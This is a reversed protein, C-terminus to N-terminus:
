SHAKGGKRGKGSQIYMLAIGAAAILFCGGLTYMATGEGGTEPLEMTPVNTVTVPTTQAKELDVKVGTVPTNGVTFTVLTGDYFAQYGTVYPEVIAYYTNEDMPVAVSEFISQWQTNMDLTTEALFIGNIVTTGEESVSETVRYLEFVVPNMIDAVVGEWKKEVPIETVEASFVLKGNNGLSHTVRTRYDVETDTEMSCDCVNPVTGTTNDTKADHHEHYHTQYFPNEDAPVLTSYARDSANEWKNTYFVLEGGTEQLALVREESERTLGVQYILRVPLQEYYYQVDFFTEEGETRALVQPTYIPLASSPVHMAVTQTGDTNTTLTVTISTLDVSKGPIYPDTNTHNYVYTTVNGNVNVSTATYNVGNYRLVPNGKIEMGAGIQDKLDIGTTEYLIFKYPSTELSKLLIDHFIEELEESSIEGFYAGDAYSYNDAYPNGQLVPIMTQPIGSWTEPWTCSVEVAGGSYQSNLMKKLQDTTTSQNITTTLNQINEVTPNLVARKYNDGTAEDAVAPNDDGEELIGMGVTYFLAAKQYHISVMRKCYNATLVTNYGHIGKANDEGGNGDGYHPGSLPDMYNNTSYTPEGDSLLIFIPQRQVKVTQENEGTGITTEYTTDEVPVDEFIQRGVAIGAQTYTGFGQVADQGINAFSVGASNKLTSGGLLYMRNNYSNGTGEHAHYESGDTHVFYEDNTATYRDLPLLEWAGGSYIAVGIRNEDNQDMIEAIAKNVAPVMRKMRESDSDQLEDDDSVIKSMSGSVDLVFVVDVPTKVVDGHETKYQQGMASLTVGFTNADYNGFAGYDDDMYIVSKDSLVRGDNEEQEAVTDKRYNSEIDSTAPDSYYQGNVTAAGTATTGTLTTAGTKSGSPDIIDNYNPKEPVTGSEDGVTSDDMVDEPVNLETVSSLKFILMSADFYYDGPYYQDDSSLDEGSERVFNGSGTNKLFYNGNKIQWVKEKAQYTVTLNASSSYIVYTQRNFWSGTQGLYVYNSSGVNKITYNSGSKTFQWHLNTDDSGTIIYYDENGKVTTVTVQTASNSNDGRLAMNGQASVIMYTEGAVLQDTSSVREWFTGNVTERTIALAVVGIEGTRFNVGTIGSDIELIQEEKAPQAQYVPILENEVETAETAESETEAETTEVGNNLTMTQKKPPTDEGETESPVTNETNDTNETAKDDLLEETNQEPVGGSVTAEIEAETEAETEPETAEPDPTILYTHVGNSNEMQEPSFVPQHFTMEVRVTAGEPLEYPEGESFLQLSYFASDGVYQTHSAMEESLAVSMSGYAKPDKEPDVLTVKLSLDQPLNDAGEIYAFTRLINDYYVVKYSNCTEDHVHEELTCLLAGAEDYCATDHTHEDIGCYTHVLRNRSLQGYGAIRVDKPDYSVYRVRNSANGEITVLEAPHGDTAEKYEAVLGVHDSLGDNEWDFFIIDGVEPRYTGQERFLNMDRLERIWPTCGSHIPIGEVGSYHMCFSVFMACWDGYPDGYWEGYRTYGKQVGNETVVYNKESETYGLQTRAVALVDQQWLGRLEVEAFTKEWDSPYELDSEPNSYCANQHVHEEKECRLEWMGYCREGHVHHGDEALPCTLTQQPAEFCDDNHTHVEAVAETCVLVMTGPTGFSNSEETATTEDETLGCTLEKAVTYCGEGHSHGPTEEVVCQLVQEYCLDEHVHEEATETCLLTEGRIYCGADHSHAEAEPTTCTLVPEGDTYCSDDHVHIAATESAVLEYCQDSHTHTTREELSCALGGLADYCRSDHSHAVYDAKGCVLRHEQNWCGPEHVHVNLKQLNCILAPAGASIQEYCSDEHVHEEVGCYTETPTTIAPLILAYTTCFVVVCALVMVVKQLRSRIRQKKKLQQTRVITEQNM